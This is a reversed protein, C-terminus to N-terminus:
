IFKEIIDSALKLQPNIIGVWIWIDAISFLNITSIVISMSGIIVSSVLGIIYIPEEASKCTDLTKICHIMKNFCLKALIGFIILAVLGVVCEQLCDIRVKMLILNYADPGYESAINSIQESMSGILNASKDLILNVGDVNSVVKSANEIVAAVESM